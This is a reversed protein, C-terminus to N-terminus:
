RLSWAHAWQLTKQIMNRIFINKKYVRQNQKCKCLEFSPFSPFSSNWKQKQVLRHERQKKRMIRAQGPDQLAYNQCHLSPQPKVTVRDMRGRCVKPDSLGGLMEMTTNDRWHGDPHLHAFNHSPSQWARDLNTWLILGDLVWSNRQGNCKFQLQVPSKQTAKDKIELNLKQQQSSSSPPRLAQRHSVLACLLFGYHQCYGYTSYDYFLLTCSQM